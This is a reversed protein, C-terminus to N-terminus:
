TGKMFAQFRKVNKPKGNPVLFGYSKNSGFLNRPDIRKKDNVDASVSEITSEDFIEKENM